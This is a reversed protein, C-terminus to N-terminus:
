KDLKNKGQQEHPDAAYIGSFGRWHQNEAGDLLFGMTRPFVAIPRRREKKTCNTYVATYMTRM